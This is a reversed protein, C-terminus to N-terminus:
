EIQERFYEALYQNEEFEPHDLINELRGRYLEEMDEFKENEKSDDSFGKALHYIKYYYANGFMRTKEWYPEFEEEYDYDLYLVSLMDPYNDQAMVREAYSLRGSLSNEKINEATEQLTIIFAWFVVLNILFLVCTFIIKRVINLKKRKKSEKYYCFILVGIFVLFPM